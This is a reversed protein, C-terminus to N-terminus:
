QGALRLDEYYARIIEGYSWAQMICGRPKHPEDGDFLEPIVKLSLLPKFQEVLEDRSIGSRVSSTIYPGALWPWVSGNHYALDRHYQDGEYRGIYRSDDPSLSRLGYNTLLKSKVPGSYASFEDLIPFPLSFSLIFNPRLSRDDPDATDLLQNGDVFKEKFEEKIAPVMESFNEPVKLNLETAFYEATKLANHWLANVEVPLGTRPTFIVDGTRADMWTLQPKKVRILNGELGVFENGKIYSNIVNLVANYLRKVTNKDSTYKYYKYLAYIFWLSSDASLNDGTVTAPLMGEHMMGAYKELIKKALRRRKTVLVLGPMSIMTDRTWPGFWYFGAIIDDRTIFATSKKVISALEGNLSSQSMLMRAKVRNFGEPMGDSCSVKVEFSAQPAEIEFHGPHYLDEEYNSGRERDLPYQFNYYWDGDEVFNGGAQIKVYSDGSWFEYLDGNRKVAVNMDRRKVALHYNRFALLPHLSFSSPLDGDLEYRIVLWDNEPDMVLSKTINLGELKFHFAPIPEFEYGALLRYGDPYIADRYYNTDLSFKNGNVTLEEFLKSLLVVREYNDGKRKVCLGHYTRLNAFSASSSSYSGNM